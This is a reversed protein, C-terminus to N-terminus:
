NEETYVVGVSIYGTMKTTIMQLNWLKAQAHKLKLHSDEVSSWLTSRGQVM